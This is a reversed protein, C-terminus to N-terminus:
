PRLRIQPPAPPCARNSRAQWPAAASELRRTFGAVGPANAQFEESDPNFNTRFRKFRAVMNEVVERPLAISAGSNNDLVKQLREAGSEMRECFNAIGPANEKLVALDPNFVGRLRQLVTLMTEVSAREVSILGDSHTM